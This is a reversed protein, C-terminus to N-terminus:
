PSAAKIDIMPLHCGSRNQLVYREKSMKQLSKLTHRHAEFVGNRSEVMLWEQQPDIQIDEPTAFFIDIEPPNQEVGALPRAAIVAM